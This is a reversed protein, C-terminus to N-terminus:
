ERDRAEDPASFPKWTYAIDQCQIRWRRGMGFSIDHVVAGTEALRVEDMMWEVGETLLYPQVGTYLLEISGDHHAGLLRVLIELTRRHPAGAPRTARLLSPAMRVIVADVWADHLCRPDAPDYHWQASAFGFVSDPMRSQVSSLYRQYRQFRDSLAAPSIEPMDPIDSLYPVDSPHPHDPM